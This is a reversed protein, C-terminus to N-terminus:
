FRTFNVGWRIFKTVGYIFLICVRTFAHAGWGSAYLSGRSTQLFRQTINTPIESYHIAEMGLFCGNKCIKGNTVEYRPSTKPVTGLFQSICNMEQCCVHHMRRVLIISHPQNCWLSVIEFNRACILYVIDEAKNTSQWPRVLRNELYTKM